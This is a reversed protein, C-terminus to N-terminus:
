AASVTGGDMISISLDTSELYISHPSNYHFAALPLILDRWTFRILVRRSIIYASVNGSECWVAVSLGGDSRMTLRPDEERLLPPTIDQVHALM